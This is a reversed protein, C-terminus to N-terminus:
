EEYPIVNDGDNKLGTYFLIQGDNDTQMDWGFANALQVRQDDELSKVQELIKKFDKTNM